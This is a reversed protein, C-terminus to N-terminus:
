NALQVQLLTPKPLVNVNIKIRASPYIGSDIAEVYYSTNSTPVGLNYTGGTVGSILTGASNYWKYTYGPFVNLIPISVSEGSCVVLDNVKPPTIIFACYVNVSSLVGSLGIRVGDFSTSGAPLIATIDSTSVINLLSKLASGTYALLGNVNGATKRIELSNLLGDLLSINLLGTFTFKVAVPSNSLPLSDAKTFQLNQNVSGTSVIVKITSSTSLSADAAAGPNDISSLVLGFAGTETYPIQVNAYVRQASASRACVFIVIVYLVYYVWRLM